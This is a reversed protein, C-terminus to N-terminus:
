SLIASRLNEIRLLAAQVNDGLFDGSGHVQLGQGLFGNVTVLRLEDTILGKGWILVGRLILMLCHACSGVIRSSSKKFKLIVHLCCFVRFM